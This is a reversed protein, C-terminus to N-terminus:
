DSVLPKYEVGTFKVFKPLAEVAHLRAPHVVAGIVGIALNFLHGVVLVAMMVIFGIAPSGIAGRVESALQNVVGAIAASAIGLGFLRSYSMVDGVLSVQNYIGWLGIGLRKFVNKSDSFFLLIVLLGAALLVWWFSIGLVLLAGGWLVAISGLKTLRLQWHPESLAALLFAITLHIIGLAISIKFLIMPDGHDFSIDIPIWERGWPAIGFLSGTLLGVVLSAIGFFVTISGAVRAARVKRLIRKLLLGGIILSIGYGVDGLCIGFFLLMFPAFFLAPDLGRYDPVGLLRLLPELVKAVFVNRTLVPPTEEPLPEREEMVVPAEFEKLSRRVEESREKPVWGAFARMDGDDFARRITVQYYYERERREQTQRLGDIGAKARGINRLVSAREQKLREIDAQVDSLREDPLAVEDARLLKLTESRSITIFFLTDGAKRIQRAIVGEPLSIEDLRSTSSWLKIFVGDGELASLSEPDFDGWPELQALARRRSKIMDDLSRKKELLAEVAAFSMAAGAEAGEPSEVDMAELEKIIAAQVNLRHRIEDLPGLEAESRIHEPHLVGLKQLLRLLDDGKQSLTVFTARNMPVIAM